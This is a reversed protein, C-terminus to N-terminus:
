MFYTVWDVIKTWSDRDVIWNVKNLKKDYFIWNILFIWADKWLNEDIWNKLDQLQYWRTKIQRCESKDWLYKNLDIFKWEVITNVNNIEKIYDDKFYIPCYEITDCNDIEQNCKIEIRQFNQWINMLIPPNSIYDSWMLNISTIYISVLIVWVISLEIMTLCKKVLKRM